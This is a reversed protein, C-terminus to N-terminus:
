RILVWKKTLITRGTQLRCFYIGSPAEFADWFLRYEGKRQFGLFLTEMRRGRIDFVAIDVFGDSPSTYKFHTVANFPNPYNELLLFRENCRTEKEEVAESNKRLVVNLVVTSEPYVVVEKRIDQNNAYGDKKIWCPVKAALTWLHFQGASDTYVVNGGGYFYEWASVQVNALPIGNERSVTGRIWGMAGSTDNQSGITPSRDLYYDAFFEHLFTMWCLSCGKPIADIGIGDLVKFHSTFLILQDRLPDITLAHDLDEPHIVTYTGYDAHMHTIFRATDSRTALLCTDLSISSYNSQLELVWGTPGSYFESIYRPTAPNGYLHSGTLLFLILFFRKNRM